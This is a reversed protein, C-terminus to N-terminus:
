LNDHSESKARKAKFLQYDTLVAKQLDVTLHFPM